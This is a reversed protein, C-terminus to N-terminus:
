CLIKLFILWLKLNEWFRAIYISLLSKLLHCLCFTIFLITCKFYYLIQCSNSNFIFDLIPFLLSIEISSWKGFKQSLILNRFVPFIDLFEKWITSANLFQESDNLIYAVCACLIMIENNKTYFLFESLDSMNFSVLFILILSETFYNSLEPYLKLYIPHLLNVM